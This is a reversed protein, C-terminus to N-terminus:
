GSSNRLTCSHKSRYIDHADRTSQWQKVLEPALGERSLWFSESAGADFYWKFGELELYLGGVTAVLYSASEGERDPGIVEARLGHVFCLDFLRPISQGLLPWKIGIEIMAM